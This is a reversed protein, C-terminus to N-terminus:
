LAPPQNQVADVFLLTLGIYVICALALLVCFLMCLICATKNGRLYRRYLALGAGTLILLVVALWLPM